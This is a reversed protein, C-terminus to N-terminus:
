FNIRFGVSGTVSSEINGGKQYSAEAWVSANPTLQASVGTGYKETTGSINNTFNYRNNIRVKNNDSFEHSIAATLYPSVTTGAVDLSMGLNVGAEGQLSKTTEIRAKM